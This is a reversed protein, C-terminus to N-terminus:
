KNKQFYRISLLVLVISFYQGPTLGLYRADPAAIDTARWFDLVFRVVGYYGFLVATFWGTPKNKKRAIYFIIAVPLLALIELLAMDLRPGDPTNIALACDCPKGWHDHIMVCGVRGVLWGYLSAYSFLDLVKFLKEKSIKQKRQWLYLALGAGFVGGFSSMGGHWLAFLELPHALFYAPEYFFVHFLRAFIVGFLITRIGLDLLGEADMGKKKALVFIIRMSLLMGLAVFFGWVQIPIPGLYIVNYQFWPIM